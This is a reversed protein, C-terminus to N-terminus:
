DELSGNTHKDLTTNLGRINTTNRGKREWVYTICKQIISSNLEIIKDWSKVTLDYLIFVNQREVEKVSMTEM